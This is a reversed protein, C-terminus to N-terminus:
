NAPLGVAHMSRIQLSPAGGSGLKTSIATSRPALSRFCTPSANSATEEMSFAHVSLLEFQREFCLPGTENTMCPQWRFSVSFMSCCSALENDLVQLTSGSTLFM